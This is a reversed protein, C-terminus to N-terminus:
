TRRMEMAVGRGESSRRQSGSRRRGGVLQTVWDMAGPTVEKKRGEYKVDILDESLGDKVLTDKLIKLMNEHDLMKTDFEITGDDKEIICSTEVLDEIDENSISKAIWKHRLRLHKAITWSSTSFVQNSKPCRLLVAMDTQQSNRRKKHIKKSSLHCYKSM